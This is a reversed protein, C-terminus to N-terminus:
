GVNEVLARWESPDIRGFAAFVLPDFRTGTCNAIEVRAAEDTRSLRYPRPSTMSEFADVLHFIRGDIPIAVGHAGSPYGTGDFEEHHSLILPLARRLSPIEHVLSAGIECHKRLEAREAPTLATSKEFDVNPVGIHGIDHLLAGLEVDLVREPSLGMERALRRSWTAVRECHAQTEYGRVAVTRMLAAAAKRAEIRATLAPDRTSPPGTFFIREEMSEGFGATEMQLMKTTTVTGM